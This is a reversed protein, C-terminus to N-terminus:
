NRHRPLGRGRRGLGGRRLTGDSNFKNPRGQGVPAGSGMNSGGHVNSFQDFVGPRQDPPYPDIGGQATHGLPVASLQSGVLAAVQEGILDHVLIAMCDAVDKTTVPGTDPPEVKGGVDQLFTLETRALDFNPARVMGLGVANKFTEYTEWNLARTATREWLSIRKPYERMAIYQRLRQIFGISNFQDFTMRVPMFRDIYGKMDEEVAMYDIEFNNYGFDGPTWASLVDFIVHPVMEGTGELPGMEIHCIGWGFNAGSKSPDGHAHYDVSPLVGQQKPVVEKGNWGLDFIDNVRNEPLYADIISAFHGRYEVRFSEPNAREARKLQEDYTIVAQPKREFYQPPTDVRRPLMELGGFGTKEWDEYIEWSPLQAVLMEPYVPKGTEEDKEFALEYREFQKGIKQWPSSPMFIFGENHFQELSPLASEFLADAQDTPTIHAIEDFILMFTAPGRGALTTSERAAIEFVADDMETKNKNQKQHKSWLTISEAQPRSVYENLTPSERIFMALDRWQQAKAQDRKGAFVLCALRKTPDIGYHAHPNGLHLYYDLIYCGACAGLFNKSGRRGIPMNVERFWHRGEAKNMEIREYIDPQVGENGTDEYTRIWKRIVQHDYDTFINRGQLDVGLFILKLITAQRPFLKRGLYQQKNTTYSIIDPLRHTTDTPNSHAEGIYSPNIGTAVM